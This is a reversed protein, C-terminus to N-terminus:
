IKIKGDKLERFRLSIKNHAWSIGEARNLIKKAKQGVM